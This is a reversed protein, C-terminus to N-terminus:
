HPPANKTPNVLTRARELDESRVRAARRGTMIIRVAFLVHAVGIGVLEEVTGSVAAPVYNVLTALIFLASFLANSGISSFRQRYYLSTTESQPTATLPTASESAIPQEYAVQLYRALREANVHVAYLAEYGAALVMLPVLTAASVVDTTFVWLTLAAWGVMVVILLAPALTARVRIATRLSDYELARFDTM